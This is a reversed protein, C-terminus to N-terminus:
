AAWRAEIRHEWERQLRAWLGPSSISELTFGMEIAEDLSLPAELGLLALAARRDEAHLTYAPHEEFIDSFEIQPDAAGAVQGIICRCGHMMSLKSLDVLQQWGPRRESLWAEGADVREPIVVDWDITSM